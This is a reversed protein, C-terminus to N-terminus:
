AELDESLYRILTGFKHFVPEGSVRYRSLTKPAFGPLRAARQRDLYM